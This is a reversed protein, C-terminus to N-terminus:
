RSSQTCPGAPNGVSSTSKVFAGGGPEGQLVGAHAVV